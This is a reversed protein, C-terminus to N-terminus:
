SAVICAKHPWSGALAAHHVHLTILAHEINQLPILLYSHWCIKLLSLQRSLMSHAPGSNTQSLSRLFSGGCLFTSAEPQLESHWPKQPVHIDPFIGNLATLIM